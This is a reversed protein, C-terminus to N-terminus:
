SKPESPGENKIRDDITAIQLEIENALQVYEIFWEKESESSLRELAERHITLAGKFSKLLAKLQEVDLADYKINHTRGKDQKIMTLKYDDAFKGRSMMEYSFASLLVYSGYNGIFYSAFSQNRYLTVLDVFAKDFSDDFTEMRKEFLTLTNEVAIMKGSVVTSIKSAEELHNEIHKPIRIAIYVASGIILTLIALVVSIVIAMTDIYTPLTELNKQLGFVTQNLSEIQKEISDARQSMLKLSDIKVSQIFMMM